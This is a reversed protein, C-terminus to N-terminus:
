DEMFEKEFEEWPRGIFGETRYRAMRELLLEKHWEPIDVYWVHEYSEDTEPLFYRQEQSSM